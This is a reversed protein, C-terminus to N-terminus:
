TRDTEDASARQPRRPPRPQYVRRRCLGGVAVRCPVTGRVAHRVGRPGAALRGGEGRRPKSSQRPQHPGDPPPEQRLGAPRGPRIYQDAPRSEPVHRRGDRLDLRPDGGQRCDQGARGEREREVPKYAYEIAWYDYPGITPSFYDGQKEGKAAINAPLYDMISGSTGKKATFEPNNVDQLSYATSAKFNHRLGLTHGVEHMVVEKVAQAILKEPVKDGPDLEGKAALVAALVGLQRQMGPGMQCRPCAMLGVPSSLPTRNPRSLQERFFDRKDRLLRDLQPAAAAFEPLDAAFLKHFGQRQGSLLMEMKEPIGAKRLYEQRWYRVMGEDFIIDADLIEGTKPNTRSPGMAFGASTTIWRFTNYRIDEPDFDDDAQQDRVQIADIFGIKEFAKNWELIGERVYQRYERPVTREIWFIIPQKPPSKEASPKEKQLDWRTVYRVDPSDPVDSTFDKVVSLFHGVRDDALRTKYPTAPLMSLGYHIVVQTGRPDPISDDSSYFFRGGLGLTFVTSVEVEINKPFAKVKTWTSRSPDPNIGIGALDSMFLDALDILVMSGGGQESKVPVAKIVSDTYSLRVADAQPSGTEARFRVNRRIVLIREGARHFSILWQDGFNLTDGGIYLLGAGRAIAMPLILEKDYQDQRLEMLLKQEKENYFLPFLGDLRKAGEIVKEWEPFKKAQEPSKASQRGPEEKAKGVPAVAPSPDDDAWSHDSPCPWLAIASALGLVLYVALRTSRM